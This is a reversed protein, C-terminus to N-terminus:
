CPMEIQGPRTDPAWTGEFLSAFIFGFVLMVLSAFAIACRPPCPARGSGRRRSAALLALSLKAYMYPLLTYLLVCAWRRAPLAPLRSQREVRTMDCHQEGPTRAGRGLTLGFYALTGAAQVEHQWTHRRQTGILADLARNAQAVLDHCYSEDKQSSRLVEAAAADPFLLAATSEEDSMFAEEQTHTTAGTFRKRM